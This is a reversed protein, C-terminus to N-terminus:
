TLEMIREDINWVKNLIKRAKQSLHKVGYKRNETREAEVLTTLATREAILATRETM